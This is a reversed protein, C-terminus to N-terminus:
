AARLPRLPRNLKVRRRYPAELVDILREMAARIPLGQMHRVAVDEAALVEPADYSEERHALHHIMETLAKGLAAKARFRLRVSTMRSYRLEQYVGWAAAARMIVARTVSRPHQGDFAAAPTDFYIEFYLDFFGAGYTNYLNTVL